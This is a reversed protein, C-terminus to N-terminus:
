SGATRFNIVCPDSPKIFFAPDEATLALWEDDAKRKALEPTNRVGDRGTAPVVDSLLRGKEEGAKHVDSEKM